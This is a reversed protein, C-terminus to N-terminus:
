NKLFANKIVEHDNDSLFNDIKFIVFPKKILYNINYNDDKINGLINTSM